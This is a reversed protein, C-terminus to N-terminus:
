PGAKAERQAAEYNRRFEITWEKMYELRDYKKSFDPATRWNLERPSKEGGDKPSLQVTPLAQLAAMAGPLKAPGGHDNITQWADKLEDGADMCMARVLDRQIGFHSGTWRPYYIFNKALEYPDIGPDALNDAAHKVHELHRQQLVPNTSPYFDRRVPVRRLAFKEPGGPEGPRYCWLQQGEESLVFEIFRVAIQRREKRLAPTDAGGGAGRMLSVPDCSVSSGGLPTIYVMRAKGAPDSSTEAQFRGYFDICMGVAADGASVDIPVKSASDTFYRANAGILQVLKIGELWGREIAQQYAPPVEPPLDWPKYAAGRQKKLDGISKEFAAIKADDFGAALVTDHIKQHIMMEFAKSATGSKTPDVMGLSKFYIPDALDDWLAPPRGIRLDALRDSNYCIGFTSVANGFVTPTRWIEGSVKEPILLSDQTSPPSDQTSLRSHQTTATPNLTFLGKPEQGPKWPPVTLGQSFAYSHDFEGGGFFLDIRSSFAEPDDISRAENYLVLQDPDTPPRTAVLAESGNEPWPKSHTREWWGRVAAAHEGTLYRSTETTGGPVRWDIKVARGFNKQHWKSFGREFEYRIAENHVTVVVLVTDGEKWGTAGGERRLLFPLAILALLLFIITAPKWM